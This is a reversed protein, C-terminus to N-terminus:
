VEVRGGSRQAEIIARTVAVSRLGAAGSAEFPRGDVICRGFEEIQAQYQDLLRPQHRESWWGSPGDPLTIDLTGQTQVDVVNELGVRGQAGYIWIDNKSLPFRGGYVLHGHAGSAFELLVQAFTELSREPTQGSAMASVARVESDLLYLLADVIHVGLGMLAGAGGMQLPDSKWAAHPITLRPPPSSSLNFQASAYLVEGIRGSSIQQRAEGVLRHHRLMFGVGLQVGRSRATEVMERAEVVSAAMPKECLVHKGARLAALSHAAHLSNPTSVYVADVNPDVVLEDLSRYATRIGYREALARAKDVRQGWVGVLEAGEAAVVAPIMWLEAHRGAGVFAWRLSM